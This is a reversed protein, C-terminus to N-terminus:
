NGTHSKIIRDHDGVFAAAIRAWGKKPVIAIWDERSSRNFAKSGGAM